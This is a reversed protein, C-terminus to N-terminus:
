CGGVMGGASNGQEVGRYANSALNSYSLEIGKEQLVVAKQQIQAPFFLTKWKAVEELVQDDTYEDGHQTILYKALGRMAYSHACGCAPQGNEFIVSRAGCCYECSIGNANRYLINVYRENQEPTLQIANDLQGLVAIVANARQPDTPSVDDYRIGLENGYISPVGVPSVGELMTLATGADMMSSHSSGLQRLSLFNYASLLMAATLVVYIVTWLHLRIAIADDKVM